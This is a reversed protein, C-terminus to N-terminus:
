PFCADVDTRLKESLQPKGQDMVLADHVTAIHKLRCVKKGPRRMDYTKITYGVLCSIKDCKFTRFELSEIDGGECWIDGCAENLLQVVQAAADVNGKPAASLM